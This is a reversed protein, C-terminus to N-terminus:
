VITLPLSHQLFLSVILLMKVDCILYYTKEMLHCSLVSKKKSILFHQKDYEICRVDRPYFVLRAYASTYDLTACLAVNMVYLLCGHLM